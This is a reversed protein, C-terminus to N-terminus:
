LGKVCIRFYHIEPIKLHSATNSHSHSGVSFSQRAKVKLPWAAGSHCNWIECSRLWKCLCILLGCALVSFTLFPLGLVTTPSTNSLQLVAASTSTPCHLVLRWFSLLAICCLVDSPWYPLAVCSTLRVTEFSAKKGRVASFTFSVM